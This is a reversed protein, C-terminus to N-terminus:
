GRKYFAFGKQASTKWFSKESFTKEQYSEKNESDNDVIVENLQIDRERPVFVNAGANELMPILYPITFAIPGVDEVTQFLRARQWMWRKEKNNYYWGHSHWLLINNGTLGKTLKLNKSVNQVVPIREIKQKPLKSSDIRTKDTQYFNPILKEIPYGMSSIKYNYNEFRPGFSNKVFRYIENVNEERFPVVAFNRNFTITITNDLSDINANELKTSAPLNFEQKFSDINETFLDSKNTFEDTLSMEQVSSCKLFIISTIILLTLKLNKM